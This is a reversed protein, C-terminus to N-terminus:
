AHSIEVRFFASHWHISAKSNHHQLLIKLTGQVALLDFWDIRFYTVRSYKSSSSVSFNFSWYKPWRIFPVLENSLTRIHPFVSSLHLIPGASTLHNPLIVLDISVFKLLCWSLSLCCLRSCDMPHCLTLCSKAVLCAYFTCCWCHIRISVTTKSHYNLQETSLEKHDM